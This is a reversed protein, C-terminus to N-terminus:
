LILFAFGVSKRKKKAILKHALSNWCLSLVVEALWNRPTMYQCMFIACIVVASFGKLLLYLLHILSGCSPKPHCHDWFEPLALKVTVKESGQGTSNQLDGLFPLGCSRGAGTEPSFWEELSSNREKLRILHWLYVRSSMLCHWMRALWVLRVQAGPLKTPWLLVVSLVVMPLSVGATGLTVIASFRDSVVHVM